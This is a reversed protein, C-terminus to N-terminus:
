LSYVSVRNLIEERYDEIDLDFFYVLRLFIESGPIAEGKEIKQYERVSIGIKSAVEEQTLRLKDTRAHFVNHSFHSRFSM